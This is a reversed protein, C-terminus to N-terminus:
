RNQAMRGKSPDFLYIGFPRKGAKLTKIVRWRATDIVAVTGGAQSTVYLSRGDASFVSNVPSKGVRITEVARFSDYDFIKVVSDAIHTTATYRGTPSFENTAPRKGVALRALRKFSQTDFVSVTSAEREQVWLRKGDPSLTLMHPKSGTEFRITKLTKGTRWDVVSVTDQDRDPEYVLNGDASLTLDCPFRGVPIRRVVQYSSTDIVVVENSGAAATVAFRHDPTLEVSFSPGKGFPIRKLTRLTWPDFVVVEAKKMDGDVAWVRKGDFFRTSFWRIRLNADRTGTVENTETDIVSVNGSAADFVYAMTKANVPGALGLAVLAAAVGVGLGDARVRLGPAKGEPRHMFTMM